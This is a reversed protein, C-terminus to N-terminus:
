PTEKKNDSGRSLLINKLREEWDGPFGMHRVNIEHENILEKLRELWSSTPNIKSVVIQMAVLYNYLRRNGVNFYRGYVRHNMKPALTLDRNWLRSHHACSNRLVSLCHMWSMVFQEDEGYTRSIKNKYDRNLAKGIKVCQGFSLIEMVMWIPPLEPDEYAERYHIISAERSKYVEDSVLRSMEASLNENLFLEKDLYCHSDNRSISLEYAMRCKFSKEIRELVELLLLRLKNDFVYIKLVDEFDTGSFFVDNRQFHKFYISLHYYSINRLYYALRAEDRVVLGRKKLLAIQEEITLPPKDYKQKNIPM